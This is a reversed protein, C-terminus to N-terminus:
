GSTTTQILNTIFCHPLVLNSNKMHYISEICTAFRFAEQHDMATVSRGTISSILNVLMGNYNEIFAKSNLEALTESSLYQSKLHDLVHLSPKIINAGICCLLQNLKEKVVSNVEGGFTLKDILQDVLNVVEAVPDIEISPQPNIVPEDTETPTEDYTDTNATDSQSQDGSSVQHLDNDLQYRRSGHALCLNCVYSSRKTM